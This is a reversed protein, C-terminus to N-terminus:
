PTIRARAVIFSATINEGKVSSPILGGVRNETYITSFCQDKGKNDVCFFAVNKAKWHAIWEPDALIVWSKGNSALAALKNERILSEDQFNDPTIPNLFVTSFKHEKGNIEKTIVKVAGRIIFFDYETKATHCSLTKVVVENIKSKSNTKKTEIIKSNDVDLFGIARLDEIRLQAQLDPSLAQM